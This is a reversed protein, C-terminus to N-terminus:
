FQYQASAGLLWTRTPAAEYYRKNADGVIVSGIYNRDLLNNLRVFQKLQWGAASQHTQFRANVTAYGPAPTDANADDAYVRGNALTEVAIDVRKASDSWALDAFATINAVGPLRSGKPVAGFGQDYVARLATLALHSTFANGFRTDVSLEAGQRLTASANRYSTRGGSASDVVLEDRTRVQFLAANIRTNEAVVTKLGLEVHTSTAAKLAFNFGGGTGSYFLENLTPTEFGRAASAYVNLLPTLKFVAGLVPTTHSYTVAGSDNGNGLFRDVVDVQLRSRRVGATLAWAGRQWEAQAYPDASTLVDQEDRRLAGRVGFETGIFNEYGRRADSAHGYDVGITTSLTGGAVGRVTLWNLDAGDFDRQFDVVGGAQSAPAQLAKSFAQYQIVGRNGGYLSLRLRDDGFRQEWALGAQQHAISKRTNYREALTRKPVQTDTNDTEGARPDRQYTAWTVGLPDQTDDQRLNAAILTLTSSASTTVTLKAFAQDRRAASHSRYGDTEFRSGDVLYGLTDNQGQANLDLKHTGDSGGEVSAEMTPSGRPTRTFLQIVGGAHNGYIASFPGRLVEIREAVDLNFTAAQGQGDPMTAPIGDAILRVGRVGFASRAGFGRSSIQLDQAYNQRNQAVIGPVGSLAESANVRAQGDRIRAADVVDIAAPLDFSDHEVRAGSVVVVQAVPNAPVDQAGAPLACCPLTAIVLLRIPTSM